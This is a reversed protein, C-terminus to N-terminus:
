PDGHNGRRGEQKGKGLLAGRFRLSERLGEGPVKKMKGIKAQAGRL